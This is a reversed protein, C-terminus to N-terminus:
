VGSGDEAVHNRSALSPASDSDGANPPQLAELPDKYPM